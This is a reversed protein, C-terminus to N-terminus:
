WDPAPRRPPRRNTKDGPRTDSQTRRIPRRYLGTRRPRDEPPPPRQPRPRGYLGPRESREPDGDPPRRRMPRGYLGTRQPRNDPAQHHERAAHPKRASRGPPSSRSNPHPSHPRDSGPRENGPEPYDSNGPAAHDYDASRLYPHDPRPAARRRPAPQPEPRSPLRDPTAARPRATLIKRADDKPTSM